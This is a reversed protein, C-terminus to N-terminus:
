TTIIRLKTSVKLFSTKTLIYSAVFATTMTVYYQQQSPQVHSIINIQNDRDTILLIYIM